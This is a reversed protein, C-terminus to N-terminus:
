AYTKLLSSYLISNCSLSSRSYTRARIIFTPFSLRIGLRLLGDLRWVIKRDFITHVIVSIKL